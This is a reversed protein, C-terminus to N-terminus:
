EGPAVASHVLRFGISNNKYNPKNRLRNASRLGWPHSGWSGGRLMRVTTDAGDEWVSGDSPANDYHDHNPDACWEWVNGHMDFLGFGNPELQGVPQTSDESNDKYWAHTALDKQSDGFSYATETGARAAYEWEAESPLRFPPQSTDKNLETLFKQITNWSVQEVPHQQTNKKLKKEQFYAPNKGMVQQWQQQTVEYRGVWFEEICVKHVPGESTNRGEEGEPSGMNFCGAPIKIFEMGTGPEKWIQAEQSSPQPEDSGGELTRIKQAAANRLQEDRDSYPNDEAFAGLFREWGAIKLASSIDQKEYSEVQSFADEMNKLSAEWQAKLAKEQQAAKELDELSFAGSIPKEPVATAPSSGPRAPLITFAASEQVSRGAEDSVTVTVLAKASPGDLREPLIYFIASGEGDLTGPGFLEWTYRLNKGRVRATLAIEGDDLHFDTRDPNVVLRIDTDAGFSQGPFVSTLLTLVCLFISLKQMIRWM